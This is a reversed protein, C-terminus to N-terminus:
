AEVIDRKSRFLKATKVLPAQKLGKKDGGGVYGRKVSKAQVVVPGDNSRKGNTVVNNSINSSAAQDRKVSAPLASTTAFLTTFAVASALVPKIYVM